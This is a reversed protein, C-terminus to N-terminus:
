ESTFRNVVLITLTDCDSRKFHMCPSFVHCFWFGYRSREPAEEKERKGRSSEKQKESESEEDDSGTIEGSEASDHGATRKITTGVISKMGGAEFDERFDFSFINGEFLIPHDRDIKM